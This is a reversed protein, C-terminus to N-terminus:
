VETYKLRWHDLDMILLGSRTSLFDMILLGSRTSMKLETYQEEFLSPTSGQKEETHMGTLCAGWHLLTCRTGESCVTHIQKNINQSYFDEWFAEADVCLWVSGNGICLPAAHVKHVLEAQQSDCVVWQGADLHFKQSKEDERNKELNKEKWVAGKNWKKQGPWLEGREQMKSVHWWRGSLQRQKAKNCPSNEFLIDYTKDEELFPVKRRRWLMCGGGNSRGWSEGWQNTHVYTHSERDWM